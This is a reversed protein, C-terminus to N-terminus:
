VQMRACVTVRTDDSLPLPRGDRDKPVQIIVDRLKSHLKPNFAARQPVNLWCKYERGRFVRSPGDEVGDYKAFPGGNAASLLRQRVETTQDANPEFESGNAERILHERVKIINPERKTTKSVFALTSRTLEDKNTTLPTATTSFAPPRNSIQLRHPFHVVVLTMSLLLPAAASDEPYDEM